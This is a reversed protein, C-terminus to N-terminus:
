LCFGGIRFTFPTIRHVIVQKNKKADKRGQEPNARHSLRYQNEAFCFVSQM